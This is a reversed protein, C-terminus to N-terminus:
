RARQATKLWRLTKKLGGFTYFHVGSVTASAPSQALGAVVNRLLDDPKMDKLFQKILDTRQPLARISAGIGCRLAFRVLATPSAPGAFGVRIPASVGLARVHGIWTLIAASDFCFQSIIGMDLGSRKMFAAKESLAADMEEMPVVPHEEPHGAVFLRTIAHKQFQETKLLDLTSRFPGRARSLDGAIVLARDVGAENRAASLYDVLVAESEIGRAAIHPVPVFGARRLAKATRVSDRYHDSPLFTVNVHTGPALHDRLVDDPATDHTTVEVSAGALVDALMTKESPREVTIM